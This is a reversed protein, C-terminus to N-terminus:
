GRVPDLRINSFSRAELVRRVKDTVVVINPNGDLHVFDSGDWHDEDPTLNGPSPFGTRGCRDCLLESGPAIGSRAAEGHVVAEWLAPHVLEAVRKNKPRLTVPEFSVGACGASMIADRVAEKLWLVGPFPHVVDNTIRGSVEGEANGFVAGPKIRDEDVGLMSAWDPVRQRWRDMDLFSFGRYDESWGPEPSSVIIRESSAWIGCRDCNVSPLQYRSELRVPNNRWAEQDSEYEPHSLVYWLM